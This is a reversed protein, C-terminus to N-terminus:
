FDIELAMKTCNGIVQSFHQFLLSPPFFFLGCGYNCGCGDCSFCEGLSCVSRGPLGWVGLSVWGRRWRMQEVRFRRLRNDELAAVRHLLARRARQLIRAQSHCPLLAALLLYQPYRPARLALPARVMARAQAAQDM